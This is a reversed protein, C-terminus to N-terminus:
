KRVQAGITVPYDSDLHDLEDQTLESDALGYLFSSAALVNGFVEVELSDQGFVGGCLRSISSQTFSWHWADGYDAGHSIPTIGPVTLLLYGGPKLIRHLTSLAGHLDYILQLVQTCIVCDFRETPIEDGHELRCTYTAHAGGTVELVESGTVRDGGFKGTYLPDSFELVRGRIATARTALFREIYYRDVPRGRDFGWEDSVPTLRRLSGFDIRRPSPPSVRVKTAGTSEILEAIAEELDAADRRGVMLRPIQLRDCGGAVVQALGSFAIDFGAQRVIEVERAGYDAYPYSFASVRRELSAELWAKSSAIENRADEDDLRPLMPHTVTHAGVEILCGDTLAPLEEVTLSHESWIPRRGLQSCVAALAQRRSEDDHMRLLQWLEEYVRQRIPENLPWTRAEGNLELTLSEASTGNQLVVEALEDWWFPTGGLFGTAISVLAPAEHRELVPKATHLNNAYGDDFTLAFCTDTLTGKRLREGLESVSLIRGSTSLVRLHEEFVAPAVALDFPDTAPEAISHYALVVAQGKQTLGRRGPRPASVQMAGSTPPSPAVPDEEIRSLGSPPGHGEVASRVALTVTTGAVRAIVSGGPAGMLEIAFGRQRIGDDGYEVPRNSLGRGIVDGNSVIEILCPENRPMRRAWGRALNGDGVRELTGEYWFPPASSYL